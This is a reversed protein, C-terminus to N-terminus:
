SGCVSSCSCTYHLCCVASARVSGCASQPNEIMDQTLQM